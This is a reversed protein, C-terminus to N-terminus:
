SNDILWDFVEGLSECEHIPEHATTGPIKRTNLYLAEWGANKAGVVDQEWSDGVFLCSNAKEGLEDAMMIFIKAEPKAFGIEESILIHEKKIMEKNLGIKKLQRYQKQPMGNSIIGTKIQHHKLWQMLPLLAEDPESFTDIIDDYRQHFRDALSDNTRFGFAHMTEEFRLRRYTVVDITGENYVGWFRDCNKKFIFFWDEFSVPASNYKKLFPIVEHQYCYDISQNFAKEHSYLTNDLDFCVAKWKM